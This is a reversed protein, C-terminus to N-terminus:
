RGAHRGAGGSNAISGTSPGEMPERPTQMPVGGCGAVALRAYREGLPLSLM